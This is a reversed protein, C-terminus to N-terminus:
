RVPEDAAPEDGGARRVQLVDVGLAHARDLFRDLTDQDVVLGRLVVQAPVDSLDYEAILALMPPDLYGHLTIEYGAGTATFPM